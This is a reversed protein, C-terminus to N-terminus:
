VKNNQRVGTFKEWHPPPHNGYFLGARKENGKAWPLATHILHALPHQETKM